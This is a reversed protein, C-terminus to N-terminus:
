PAGRHGGEEDLDFALEALGVLHGVRQGLGLDGGLDIRGGAVVVQQHFEVDVVFGVDAVEDVLLHLRMGPM